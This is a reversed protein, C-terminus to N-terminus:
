TARRGQRPGPAAAPRAIAIWVARTEVDASPVNREHAPRYLGHTDLPEVQQRYAAVFAAVADPADSGTACGIQDSLLRLADDDLVGLREYPFGTVASTMVVKLAELADLM